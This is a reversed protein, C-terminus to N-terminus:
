IKVDPFRKKFGAKTIVQWRNSTGTRFVVDDATVNLAREKGNVKTVLSIHFDGATKHGLHDVLTGGIAAAVGKRNMKGVKIYHIERKPAGGKGSNLDKTTTGKFVVAMISTSRAQIFNSTIPGALSRCRKDFAREAVKRATKTIPDIFNGVGVDDSM